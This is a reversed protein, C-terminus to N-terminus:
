KEGEVLLTALKHYLPVGTRGELWGFQGLANLELYVYHGTPTLLLDIGAYVLHYSRTLALLKKSLHDPLTHPVYHLKGYDARFDIQTEESLPHIETAFVDNGIITVRIDCRKVIFEQFLHATAMVRHAEDLMEKSVLSTYTSIPLEDKDIYWPYGMLKYIITGNCGEYFQKLAEPENTVLSCPITLGLAAARQLQEPKHGAARVDDPHNIWFAQLGRLWGWIGANAERLIFTQEMTPLTDRPLIRTPRRYWVSTFEELVIRTGNTLLFSSQRIDNCMLAQVQVKEPFDGPDFIVWPHDLRDFEAVLRHVHTDDTPNSLILTKKIMTM